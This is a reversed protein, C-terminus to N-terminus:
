SSLSPTIGIVVIIEFLMLTFRRMGINASWRGVIICVVGASWFQPLHLAYHFKKIMADIGYLEKFSRTHNQISHLLDNPQCTGRAVQELLSIIPVLSLFCRGHAQASANAGKMVVNRVWNEIIPLLSRGESAQCKFV